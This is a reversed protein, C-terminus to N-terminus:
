LNSITVHLLFSNIAYNDYMKVTAMNECINATLSLGLHLLKLHSILMQTKEMMIDIFLMKPLPKGEWMLEATFAM